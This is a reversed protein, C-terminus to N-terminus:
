FKTHVDRYKPKVLGIFTQMTCVVCPSDSLVRGCLFPEVLVDDLECRLELVTEARRVWTLRQFSHNRGTYHVHLVKLHEMSSGLSQIYGKVDLTDHYARSRLCLLRLNRLKELNKYLSADFEMDDYGLILCRLRENLVLVDGLQKSKLLNRGGMRLERVNCHSLFDLSRFRPVAVFTLRGGNRGVSLEAADLRRLGCPSLSLATLSTLGAELLVETMDLGAGCHFSNANLEALHEYQESENNNRFHRLFDVLGDHYAVDACPYHANSSLDM